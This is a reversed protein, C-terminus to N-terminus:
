PDSRLVGNLHLTNHLNEVNKKEHSTTVHIGM